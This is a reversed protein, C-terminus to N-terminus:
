VYEWHTLESATDVISVFTTDLTVNFTVNQPRVCNEIEEINTKYLYIYNTTIHKSFIFEFQITGPGVNPLTIKKTGRSGKVVCSENLLTYTNGGDLTYRMYTNVTDTTSTQYGDVTIEVGNSGRLIFEPSAFYATDSAAGYSSTSYVYGYWSYFNWNIGSGPTTYSDWCEPVGM